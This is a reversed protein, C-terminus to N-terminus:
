RLPLRTMEINYFIRDTKWGNSFDDFNTSIRYIRSVLVTAVGKHIETIYIKTLIIQNVDERADRTSIKKM